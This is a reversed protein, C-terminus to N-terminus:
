DFWAGIVHVGMLLSVVAFGFVFIETLVLIVKLAISNKIREM